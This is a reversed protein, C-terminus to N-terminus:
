SERLAPSDRIVRLSALRHFDIDDADAESGAVAPKRVVSERRMGSLQGSSLHEAVLAGVIDAEADRAHHGAGAANACGERIEVRGRDGHRRRDRRLLDHIEEVGDAGAAAGRRQTGGIAREARESQVAVIPTSSGYIGGNRCLFPPRTMDSPCNMCHTPPSSAAVPVTLDPGAHRDGFASM